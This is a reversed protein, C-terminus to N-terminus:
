QGTRNPEYSTITKSHSKSANRFKGGYILIDMQMFMNSTSEPSYQNSISYTMKGDGFLVIDIKAAEVNAGVVASYQIDFSAIDGEISKLTYQTEMEFSMTGNDKLPIQMPIRHSFSRGIQIDKGGLMNANGLQAFVAKAIPELDGTTKDGHFSVFQMGGDALVKGQLKVGELNGSKSPNEIMESSNFSFYKKQKQVFIELPYTSDPSMMGTTIHEEMIGRSLVKSPFRDRLSEPLLNKDGEFSMEMNSETEMQIAFKANAKYGFKLQVSDKALSPFSVFLILISILAQRMPM